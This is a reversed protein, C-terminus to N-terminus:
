CNAEIGIVRRLIPRLLEMRDLKVNSAIFHFYNETAFMVKVFRASPVHAIHETDIFM